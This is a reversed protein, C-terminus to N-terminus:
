LEKLWIAIDHPATEDGGFYPYLKYGKATSTKSARPMEIIKDNLKFIYISDNVKISCNNETDLLVTGIEKSTRVSENYIYAFLRLSDKSWNWGFRASYDQHNANNDSFGYMKNIDYQNAPNSTQYIASADFKVIFKLEQYETAVFANQDSYQQGKRITYKIFEQQPPPPNNLPPANGSKSCSFICAMIFVAISFSITAKM